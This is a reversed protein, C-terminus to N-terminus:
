MVELAGDDVSVSSDSVVLKQGGRVLSVGSADLTVTNENADSVTLSQGDDDLVVKNPAKTVIVKVAAAADSPIQGDFWYAGVWIPLSLDGGEFEIWVGSEVEPLFVFGVQDGAYPVCPACWGVEIGGLLNPIHAKIRCTAADVDTVVGRYKGYYRNRLRDIVEQLMPDETRSM